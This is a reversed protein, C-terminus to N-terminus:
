RQRPERAFLAIAASIRPMQQMETPASDGNPREAHNRAEARARVNELSAGREAASVAVLACSRVTPSPLAARTRQFDVNRM